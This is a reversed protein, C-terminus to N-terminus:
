VVGDKKDGVVSGGTSGLPFVPIIRMESASMRAAVKWERLMMKRM